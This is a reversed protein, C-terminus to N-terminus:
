CVLKAFTLRGQVLRGGEMSVIMDVKLPDNGGRKKARRDIKRGDVFLVAKWDHMPQYLIASKMDVVVTFTQVTLSITM